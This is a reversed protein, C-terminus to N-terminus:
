SRLLSGGALAHPHLHTHARTCAPARAKLDYDMLEMVMYVSEQPGVVVEVVNVINPHHFALLIQVERLATLPFGEREREMKVKKLALERGDRKDRGRFVIGYTGEDIRGLRDYEDVSRCGALVNVPRRAPRPSLVPAPEDEPAPTAGAEPEEAVRRPDPAGRQAPRASPRVAPPLPTLLRSIIAPTGIQQSSPISRPTRPPPRPLRRVAGVRSM